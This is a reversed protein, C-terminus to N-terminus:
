PSPPARRSWPCAASSPKWTVFPIWRWGAVGVEGLARPDDSDLGLQTPLDFAVLLGGQGQELLYRFRHHTEEPTGFGAYQRMTWLRGQYMSPYIGRTYPYEGPFGLDRGYDLAATDLPTYLSKHPFESPMADRKTQRLAPGLREHEWNRQAEALDQQEDPHM